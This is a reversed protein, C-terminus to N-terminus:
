EKTNICVPAYTNLKKKCFNERTKRYIEDQYIKELGIISFSDITHGDTNFHDHRAVPDDVNRHILSLNLIQRQYLSDGTEGFYVKKDCRKCFLAYVVNSSKCNIRSKVFYKNNDSDQFICAFYQHKIIQLPLISSNNNITQDEVPSVSPVM